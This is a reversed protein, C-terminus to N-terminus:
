RAAHNTGRGTWKENEQGWLFNPSMGIYYRTKLGGGRKFTWLEYKESEKKKGGGM